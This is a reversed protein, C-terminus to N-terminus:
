KFHIIHIKNKYVESNVLTYNKSLMFSDRHDCLLEQLTNMYPMMTILTKYCHIIEIKNLNKIDTISNKCCYLERLNKFGDLKTLNNSNCELIELDSIPYINTITNHSCFLKVLNKLKPIGCIQNNDCILINLSDIQPIDKINNKTCDFRRLYDYNVLSSIDSINNDRILLEEINEPLKPLQTLNNNSIDIVLLYNLYSLDKLIQIKNESIFLYKLNNVISVSVEAAPPFESLDLHSLDLTISDDNICENIRYEITDKDTKNINYVRKPDINNYKKYKLDNEYISITDSDHIEILKRDKLVYEYEKSSETDIM